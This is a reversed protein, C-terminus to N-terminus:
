ITEGNKTLGKAEYESPAEEGRLRRAMIEKNLDRYEPHVLRWSEIGTLEERPYRFIDAFKSNAFVIKEDQVIYIGTLSDEVLTSYKKESERLAEEASKPETIEMTPEIMSVVNYNYRIVSYSSVSKRFFIEPFMM